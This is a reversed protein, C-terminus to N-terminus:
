QIKIARIRRALDTLKKSFDAAAADLHNALEERPDVTVPPVPLVPPTPVPVPGTQGVGDSVVTRGITFSQDQIAGDNYYAGVEINETLPVPRNSTWGTASFVPTGDLTLRVPDNGNGTRGAFFGLTHSKGDDPWPTETIISIGKGPGQSNGWDGYAPAGEFHVALVPHRGGRRLNILVRGPAGDRMNIIILKHEKGWPESGPLPTWDFGPTFCLDQDIAISGPIALSKGVWVTQQVFGKELEMVIGDPGQRPLNGPEHDDKGWDWDSLFGLSRFYTTM